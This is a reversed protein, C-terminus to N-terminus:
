RRPPDSDPRAGAPATGLRGTALGALSLAVMAAAPSWREANHPEYLFPLALTGFTIAILLSSRTLVALAIASSIGLAGLVVYAAGEPAAYLKEEMGDTPMWGTMWHSSYALYDRVWPVPGHWYDPHFISFYMKHYRVRTVHGSALLAALVATVPLSVVAGLAVARLRTTGVISPRVLAIVGWPVLGAALVVLYQTHWLGLVTTCLAAPVLWAWRADPRSTAVVCLTTLLLLAAGIWDEEARNSLVRLAPSVGVYGVAVAACMVGAGSTRSFVVLLAIVVVVGVSMLLFWAQRSTLLDSDHFQCAWRKLLANGLPHASDGMGPRIWPDECGAEAIALHTDTDFDPVAHHWILSVHSTLVVLIMVGLAAMASGQPRTPGHM